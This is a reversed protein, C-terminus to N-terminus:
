VAFWVVGFRKARNPKPQNPCFHPATQTPFIDFWINATQTPNCGLSCWGLGRIGRAMIDFSISFAMAIKQSVTKYLIKGIIM